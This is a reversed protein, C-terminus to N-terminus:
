RPGDAGRLSEPHLVRGDHCSYEVEALDVRLVSPRESVKANFWAQLRQDIPLYMRLLWGLRYDSDEIYRPFPWRQLMLPAIHPGDTETVVVHREQFSEHPYPEMGVSFMAVPSFPYREYRLLMHASAVPLFLLFAFRAPAPVASMGRWFHRLLWLAFLLAPLSAAGQLWATWGSLPIAPWTVDIPSLILRAAFDLACVISITISIAIAIRALPRNM